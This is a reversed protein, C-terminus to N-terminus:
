AAFATKAASIVYQADRESALAVRGSVQGTAPNTVDAWHTITTTM